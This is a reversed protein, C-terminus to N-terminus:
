QTKCPKIHEKGSTLYEERSEAPTRFASRHRPTYEQYLQSSLYVGCGGVGRGGQEGGNIKRKAWTKM